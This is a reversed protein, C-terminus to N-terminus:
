NLQDLGDDIPSVDKIVDGILTCDVPKYFVQTVLSEVQERETASFQGTLAFCNTDPHRQRFERLFTLGDMGPMRMDTFLIQPARTGAQALAEIGGDCFVFDYSTMKRALQRRICALILPDDDVFMVLPKM